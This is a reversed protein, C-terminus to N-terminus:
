KFISFSIKVCLACLAQNRHAIQAEKGLIFNRLWILIAINLDKYVISLLRILGEGDTVDFENNKSM